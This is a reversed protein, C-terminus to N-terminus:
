LDHYLDSVRIQRGQKSEHFRSEQKTAFDARANNYQVILWDIFDQIRQARLANLYISTLIDLRISAEEEQTM